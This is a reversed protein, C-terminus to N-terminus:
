GKGAHNSIHKEIKKRWSVKRQNAYRILDDIGHGKGYNKYFNCFAKLEKTYPNDNLNGVEAYLAVIMFILEDTSARIDCMERIIRMGEDPKNVINILVVHPSLVNFKELAEDYGCAYGVYNLTNAGSFEKKVIATDQMDFDVSLVKLKTLM